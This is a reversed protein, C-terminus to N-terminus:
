DATKILVGDKYMKWGSPIVFGSGTNKELAPNTIDEGTGAVVQDAQLAELIKLVLKAPGESVALKRQNPVSINDGLDLCHVAIEKRAFLRILDAAQSVTGLIWQAQLVLLQDGVKLEELIRHGQLREAFPQKDENEFYFEDVDRGIQAKAYEHLLRQQEESSVSSDQELTVFVYGVIRM